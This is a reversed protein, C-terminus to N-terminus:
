EVWVACGQTSCKARTHRTTPDYAFHLVGGECCPCPLTEAVVEGLRHTDTLHALIAAKAEEYLAFARTVAANSFPEGLTVIAM